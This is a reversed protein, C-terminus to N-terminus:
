VAQHRGTKQVKQYLKKLDIIFSLFSQVASMVGIFSSPRISKLDSSYRIRLCSFAPLPMRRIPLVPSPSASESLSFRSTTSNTEESSGSTGSITPTPPIFASIWSDHIRCQLESFTSANRSTVGSYAFGPGFPCVAQNLRRKFADSFCHM